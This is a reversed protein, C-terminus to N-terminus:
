TSFFCPNHETRLNEVQIYRKFNPDFTLLDTPQLEWPIGWKHLHFLGNIRVMSGLKLRSM